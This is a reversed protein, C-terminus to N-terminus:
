PWPLQSAPSGAEAQAVVAKGPALVSSSNGRWRGDHAHQKNIERLPSPGAKGCLLARCQAYASLNARWAGRFHRRGYIEM